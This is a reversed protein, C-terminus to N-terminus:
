DHPVREVIRCAVMYVVALLLAAVLHHGNYAAAMLPTSGNDTWALDIRNSSVATATLAGTVLFFFIM